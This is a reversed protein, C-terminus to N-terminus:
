EIKNVLPQTDSSSYSVKSNFYSPISTSTTADDLPGMTEVMGYRDEDFVDQQSNNVPLSSMRIYELEFAVEKMTPRKKGNLNLCRKALNAVAMIKEQAGEKKVRDDLIDYLNNEELSLIFRAVLHKEEESSTWSIPKKGTLLEVLVVGFSYVDSKDTFQSSQFYEPDLYGFTGQVRTTLHTQDISISRSTGFDSVKARYKEDILINTSKIDRHYIPMSCSSHLYALAGAADVSVQLRMSWSFPFENNQDHILQFLTGNSIFEYVLLPVETELCCGLLGVINRHNIQSLIMIENIFHGLQSEDVLKSRKVAVIRGDNLMGKYVMGQGGQGLIRSKNFNDTAKELEKSTFVNTKEVTESSSLRQQLLLGGNRKFFKQKRILERRKQIGKYLGFSGILLLLSGGGISLGVYCM